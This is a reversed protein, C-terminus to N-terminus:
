EVNIFFSNESLTSSREEIQISFRNFLIESEIYSRNTSEQFYLLIKALALVESDYNFCTEFRTVPKVNKFVVNEICSESASLHALFAFFASLLKFKNM